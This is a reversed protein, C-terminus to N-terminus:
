LAELRKIQTTVMKKIMNHFNVSPQWKLLSQAKSFDAAIPSSEMPRFLTPDSIICTQWDKGVFRYAAECLEKITHLKGTGIVFDDPKNQQLILWMAQVFDPAYGWDKAVQLNGLTLKGNCVIPKGLENKDPSNLINLAACAAGYAVKQTLFYLPRRESEHNFLIGNSIFLGHTERYIRALHHAYVKSAAYPNIPNFPTSEKLLFSNTKGFIESSSAHYVKAQPCIEKIADFLQLTGLANVYLSQTVQKWSKGPQSESALHYIENPQSAQLADIIDNKNVIDGHLLHIDRNEETIASDLKRVLGFVKYEKQLLLEKLFFGDQGTAGTILANQM